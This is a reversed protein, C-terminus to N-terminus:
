GSLPLLNLKMLLRRSPPNHPYRPIDAAPLWLLEVADSGARAVGIGLEGTYRLFVFQTLVGKYEIIDHDFDFKALNVVTLGTEELLERGIAQDQTKTLSSYGGPIHLTGPYAGGSKNQRIFLYRNRDRILAAVAVKVTIAPPVSM